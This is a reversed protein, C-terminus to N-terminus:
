EELNIVDGSIKERSIKERHSRLNNFFLCVRIKMQNIKECKMEELFTLLANRSDIIGKVYGLDILEPVESSALEFPIEIKQGGLIPSLSLALTISTNEEISVLKLYNITIEGVLPLSPIEESFDETIASLSAAHNHMLILFIGFFFIMTKNM